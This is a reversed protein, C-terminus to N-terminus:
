ALKMLMSRNIDKFKKLGLGGECRPKCVKDWAVTIMKRDTSKGTWLFNIIIQECEKRVALPWRYIAMNHVPISNLVHKVLLIRGQFSLSKGIWSSIRTRIKDLLPTLMAKM